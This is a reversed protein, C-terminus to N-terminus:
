NAPRPPRIHISPIPASSLAKPQGTPERKPPFTKLYQIAATLVATPLPLPLKTEEDVRPAELEETLVKLVADDLRESTYTQNSM